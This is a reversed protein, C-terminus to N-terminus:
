HTDDWTRGARADALFPVRLNTAVGEMNDKIMVLMEDKLEGPGEFVLEDHVQIMFRFKDWLRSEAPPTNAIKNNRAEFIRVMAIKIIDQCSGSVKFQIARTGATFDNKRWDRDLRRRRKTLTYSIFNDKDRLKRVVRDHWRAIGPYATHWREILEQAYETRPNGDDTYLDAYTAFKPAGMRYLLGFNLNNHGVLGGQLYLHDGSDVQFDYVTREGGDLVLMVEDTDPAIRRKVNVDRARLKEVKERYRMPCYKLFRPFGEALIHITYYWREYTNNFGPQVLVPMGLWRLLFAIQGAFEPHKTTVSVTGSKEDGVTGDTDFLGALYSWMMAPGGSLVWEPVRMIKAGTKGAEKALGLGAFYRRVVRSGIVTHKKNKSVRNPLGVADCADRVVNRWEAYEPTSGHTITCANGSACGDGAFMGAFYAWKKDLKIAAPGDPDVEKTFPNIDLKGSQCTEHFSDDRAEPHAMDAFPLQMGRELNQAEVLSMGPVHAYGPMSPDLSDYDGIVQFRHDETAIVVSRKTVVIKTPRNYRRLATEAYVHGGFGNALATRRIPRHEGPEIDGVLSKITAPQIWYRDTGSQSGLVLTSADLCKALPNRPVEVDEATRQHLDVHRCRKQHEVNDSGCLSCVPRGNESKPPAAEKCSLCENWMYRDCPQGDEGGQCGAVNTYVEIMNKENALHAAMRLEMQAYDADLIVMNRRDPDTENPLRACFAKRILNKDRPQNMLNIPNASSLRGIVTGTQRFHAYCRGEDQAIKILKQCFSRDIVECSRYDLLDKVLSVKKGFHSIVRDATTYQDLDPNYDLGDTPLELGGDAKRGYLFDSVQKPSRLNPAWGADKKMRELITLKKNELDEQIKVLWEWDILCGQTEMELIVRQIGMEIKWYIKELNGEPDQRRMSEMAWKWLRYTWYCDDMAYVGLPKKNAFGFVGQKGAAEEYTTMKHGFVQEVRIKLGYRRLREDQVYDALMSDAIRNSVHIPDHCGSALKLFSMDFSGNHAIAIVDELAWLKRLAEMTETQPLAKRLPKLEAGISYDMTGSIFPFWARVPEQDSNDNPVYFAVGEIRDRRPNLGTTELDYVFVGEKKAAAILDDVSISGNDKPDWDPETVDTAKRRRKAM